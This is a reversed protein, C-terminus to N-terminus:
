KKPSAQVLPNPGLRKGGLRKSAFVAVLNFPKIGANVFTHPVGAPVKVVYPAEAIFTKEGMQYRATGELLVHAEEFEHVHLNPGGNPQTKTIIFSLSDFGYKEGDLRHMYEGPSRYGEALQDFRFYHDSPSFTMKPARDYDVDAPTKEVQPPNVKSTEQPLTTNGFVVFAIFVGFGAISFLLNRTTRNM